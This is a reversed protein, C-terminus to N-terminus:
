NTRVDHPADLWYENYKGPSGDEKTYYITRSGIPIGHKKMDYIRAPLRYCKFEEACIVQTIVPHNLLYNLIKKEQSKRSEM